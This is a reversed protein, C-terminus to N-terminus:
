LREMLLQSFVKKWLQSLLKNFLFIFFYCSILFLSRHFPYNNLSPAANQSWQCAFFFVKRFSLQRTFTTTTTTKKRGEIQFKFHFFHLSLYFRFLLKSCCFLLNFIDDYPCVCMCVCVFLHDM